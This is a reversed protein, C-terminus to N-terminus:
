GQWHIAGMATTLAALTTFEGASTVKFITGRESAGGADTTGYFSGDSGEVLGAQPYSGNAYDFSVLTTLV